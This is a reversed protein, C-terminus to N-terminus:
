VLLILGQFDVKHQDGFFQWTNEKNTSRLTKSSFFHKQLKLILLYWADTVEVYVSTVEIQKLNQGGRLKM